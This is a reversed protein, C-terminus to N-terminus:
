GLNQNRRQKHRLVQRVAAKADAIEEDILGRAVPVTIDAHIREQLAYIAKCREYNGGDNELDAVLKMASETDMFKDIAWVAKGRGKPDGASKKWSNVFMGAVKMDDKFLKPTIIVLKGDSTGNARTIERTDDGPWLEPIRESCTAEVTLPAQKAEVAEEEEAAPQMGQMM